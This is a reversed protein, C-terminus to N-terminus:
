HHDLNSQRSSRSLASVLAGIALLKGNGGLSLSHEELGFGSGSGDPNPQKLVGAQQYRGTKRSWRYVIVVDRFGGAAITQPSYKCILSLTAM